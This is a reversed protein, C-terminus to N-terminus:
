GASVARLAVLDDEALPLEPDPDVPTGNLTVALPRRDRGIAAALTAARRPSPPAGDVAVRVRPALLARAAAYDAADNLNRLMGADEDLWRVRLRDLLEGMSRRDAALLLEAVALVGPRYAAALPHPRGGARPVAADAGGALAALARAVAAPHLLPLDVACVYAAEAAPGMAQLGARLGELPGLGERADETVAVGPPLPPLEQGPSRVVVVPGAARGVLGVVRRLLTSGHWELGAKEAGMRSSRGGALVIGATPM